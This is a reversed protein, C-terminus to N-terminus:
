VGGSAPWWHMTEMTMGDPAGQQLHWFLSPDGVLACISLRSISDMGPSCTNGRLCLPLLGWGKENHWNLAFWRADGHSSRRARVACLMAPPPHRGTSVCWIGFGGSKLRVTSQTRDTEVTPTGHFNTGRALQLIIDQSIRLYIIPISGNGAANHRTSTLKFLAKRWRRRASDSWLRLEPGM